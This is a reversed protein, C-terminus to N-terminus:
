KIKTTATKSDNNNLMHSCKDGHELSMPAASWWIRFLLSCIIRQFNGVMSMFLYYYYLFCKNRKDPTRNARSLSFFVCLECLVICLKQNAPEKRAGEERNATQRIHELSPIHRWNRHWWISNSQSKNVDVSWTCNKKKTAEYCHTPRLAIYNFWRPSEREIENTVTSSRNECLKRSASSDIFTSRHSRKKVGRVGNM